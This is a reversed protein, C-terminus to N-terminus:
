HDFRNPSHDAVDIKCAPRGCAVAVFDGTADRHATAGNVYRIIINWKKGVGIAQSLVAVLRDRRCIARVLLASHHISVWKHVESVSVSAM